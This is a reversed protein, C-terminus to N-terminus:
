EFDARSAIERLESEPFQNPELGQRQIIVKAKEIDDDNDDM